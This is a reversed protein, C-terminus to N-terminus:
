TKRDLMRRLQLWALVPYVGLVFELVEELSLMVYLLAQPLQVGQEALIAPARDILKTFVLVALMVAITWAPASWQALPRRYARLHRWALWLLALLIPALAALAGLKQSWPADIYFRSKLISIGYMATHMHAERGAMALLVICSAVLDGASMGRRYLLAMGLAAAVYVWVTYREVPGVEQLFDPHLWHPVSLGIAVAVAAVALTLLLASRAPAAAASPAVAGSSLPRSHMSPIPRPRGRAPSAPRAM